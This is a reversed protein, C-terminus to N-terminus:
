HPGGTFPPFVRRAKGGRRRDPGPKLSARGHLAPFGPEAAPEAPTGRRKLSARGHLAPFSRRAFDPAAPPRGAEILGARSPRSFAPSAPSTCPRKSAEILGARSPRSFASPPRRWRSRRAAEILGARSPRSFRASSDDQGVDVRLKLSARGHLAPFGGRGPRRRPPVRAEILGARSPRSFRRTANRGPARGPKM